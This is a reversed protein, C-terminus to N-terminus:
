KIKIKTEMVKLNMGKDLTKFKKELDAAKSDFCKQGFLDAIQGKFDFTIDLNNRYKTKVFKMGAITYEM